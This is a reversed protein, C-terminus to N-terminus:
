EPAGLMRIQSWQGEESRYFTAPLHKAEELIGAARDLDEWQLRIALGCDSSVKRPKLITRHAIGAGRLVQEAKLTLHTTPFVVLLEGTKM